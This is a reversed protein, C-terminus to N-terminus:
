FEEIKYILHFSNNCVKNNIKLKIEQINNDIKIIKFRLKKKKKKRKRKRRMIIITMMMM